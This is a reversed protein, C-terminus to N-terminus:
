GTARRERRMAVVSSGGIHRVEALDRREDALRDLRDAERKMATVREIGLEHEYLIRDAAARLARSEERYRRELADASM